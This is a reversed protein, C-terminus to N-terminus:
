RAQIGNTIKYVSGIRLLTQKLRHGWHELSERTRPSWQEGLGWAPKLVMLKLVGSRGKGHSGRM